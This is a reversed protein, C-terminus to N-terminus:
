LLAPTVFEPLTVAAEFVREGDGVLLGALGRKEIAGGGVDLVELRGLTLEGHPKLM